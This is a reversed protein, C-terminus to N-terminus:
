MNNEVGSGGDGDGDCQKVCVAVQSFRRRNRRLMAVFDGGTNRNHLFM